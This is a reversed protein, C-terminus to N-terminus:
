LKRVQYVINSTMNWSQALCFCVTMHMNEVVSKYEEENM